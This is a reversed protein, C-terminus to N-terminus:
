ADPASTDYCYLMYAIDRQTEIEAKLSLLAYVANRFEDETGRENRDFIEKTEKLKNKYTELDGDTLQFELDSVSVSPYVIEFVYKEEAENSMGDASETPDNSTNTTISGTNEENGCSVLQSILMALCLLLAM